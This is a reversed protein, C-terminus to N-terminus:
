EVLNNCAKRSKRSKLLVNVVTDCPWAYWFQAASPSRYIADFFLQKSLDPVPFILMWTVPFEYM